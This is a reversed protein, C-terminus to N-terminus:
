RPVFASSLPHELLSRIRMSGNSGNRQNYSALPPMMELTLFYDPEEVNDFTNEYDTFRGRYLFAAAVEIVGKKQHYVQGTVKVPKCESSNVVSVIRAQSTYVDGAKLQKAGDLIKFNNSLRVLKILDGDIFSPFISMMM